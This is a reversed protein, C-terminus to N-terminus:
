CFWSYVGGKSSKAQKSSAEADAPEVNILDNNVLWDQINRIDQLGEPIDNVM